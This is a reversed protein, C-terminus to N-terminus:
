LQIEVAMWEWFAEILSSHMGEEASPTVSSSSRESGGQCECPSEGGVAMHGYFTSVCMKLKWILPDVNEIKIWMTTERQKSSGNLLPEFLPASFETRPIFLEPSNPKRRCSGPGSSCTSVGWLKVATDEACTRYMASAKSLLFQTTPSPVRPKIFDCFCDLCM